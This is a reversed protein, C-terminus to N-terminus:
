QQYFWNSTKALCLRRRDQLRRVVHSGRDSGHSHEGALHFAGHAVVQGPVSRTSGDSRPRPPNSHQRVRGQLDAPHSTVVGPLVLTHGGVGVSVAPDAHPKKNWTRYRLVRCTM